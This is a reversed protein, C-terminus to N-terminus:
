EGSPKVLRGPRISQSGFRNQIQDVTEALRRDRDTELAGGEEFFGLQEPGDASTLHSLGVGLLRVPVRRAVRLKRLLDQAIALIPRDSSVPVPITRSANRTRFDHDRLKLTITRARLGSHRLDRCVAATLRVLITGLDDDSDIDADFTTEHSVSKPESRGVVNASAVGRMRDYLWDGTRPGLWSRLGERDIGLADAVRVLGKRRLEEALRPGVGPIAKLDLGAVFAAEEGAPVIHVGQGPGDIRPKAVEVALKAILRNTGGGISLTLGTREQVDHRIRRATDHLPEHRYLAETGDLGLYFEDISAPEVIPSWEMLVRRVEKSKRSCEGRPVPAFFADPCLREAQAIPMASRVGFARAEYSASCVVGRSGRRGGVILLPASGAGEPDVMRAVACFMADCDALLVRHSM